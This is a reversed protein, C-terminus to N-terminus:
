LAPIQKQTEKFLIYVNFEPPSIWDKDYLSDKLFNQKWYMWNFTTILEECNQRICTCTNSNVNIKKHIMFTIIGIKNCRHYVRHNIVCYKIEETAKLLVPLVPLYLAILM